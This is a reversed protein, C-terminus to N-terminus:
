PLGEGITTAINENSLLIFEISTTVKHYVIQNMPDSVNTIPFMVKRNYGYSDGCDQIETDM